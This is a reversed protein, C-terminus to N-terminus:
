GSGGAAADRERRCRERCGSGRCESGRCGSERRGSLVAGAVGCLVAPVAMLVAPSLVVAAAGDLDDLAGAFLLVLLLAVGLFMGGLGAATGAIWARSREIGRRARAVREATGPAPAWGPGRRREWLARLERVEEHLAFVARDDLHPLLSRRGTGDHIVVTETVSGPGKVAVPVTQIEIAQVDRWATRRSGLATVVTIGEADTLTASRRAAARVLLLLVVLLLPLGLLLWLPAGSRSLEAMGAMIGVLGFGPLGLGLGGSGARYEPFREEDAWAQEGM